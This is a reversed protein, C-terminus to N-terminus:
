NKGSINGIRFESNNLLKFLYIQIINTYEIYLILLTTTTTFNFKALRRGAPRRGVGKGKKFGFLTFSFIRRGWRRTLDQTGQEWDKKTKKTDKISLPPGPGGFNTPEAFSRHDKEEKAEGQGGKPRGKRAEPARELPEKVRNAM